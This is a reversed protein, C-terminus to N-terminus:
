YIWVRTGIPIYKWLYRSAEMTVRACGHSAPQPPVSTYGHIAIGDTHFYKPNYLHGLEGDRWGKVQRYVKWEGKPTDAMYRKGKHTYPKETGTSTNFIWKVKDKRILKLVQRKKDVEVGNGSKIRRGVKKPNALAKRTKPGFVGDRTLGQTKQFAYLAQQTLNGFTGDVPGVWYKLKRLRTQLQKVAKGKDGRRLTKAASSSPALLLSTPAAVASGQATATSAVSAFTGGGPAAAAPATVGMLLVVSLLFPLMRRASMRTDDGVPVVDAASGLGDAPMRIVM